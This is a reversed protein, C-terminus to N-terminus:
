GSENCYLPREAQVTTPAGYQLCEPQPNLDGPGMGTNTSYIERPIQEIAM